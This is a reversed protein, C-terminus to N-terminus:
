LAKTASTEYSRLEAQARDRVVDFFRHQMAQQATWREEHDYVLLRDLLDLADETLLSPSSAENRKKHPAISHLAQWYDNWRVRQPRNSLSLNSEPSYSTELERRLSETVEISYKNIYAWMDEIGLVAIIKHLQEVNDRGRFFPERHFLLGALICGVGWLDIAYDYYSNGLLLEPAKYHRSAVRVNYPISPHYFDALGLDILTLPSRHMGDDGRRNILVNRPKVDRHMIGTAHLGDLAALLHYLYYRIEYNTLFSHAQPSTSSLNNDASHCFWQSQPGAHQMVLAPMRPLDTSSGRYKEFYDPSVVVAILRVINPVQAARELVMIERRIKREAVPKLCKVVVLTRPDVVSPLKKTAIEKELNVDVAEFVDSFKGTGLRRTLAFDDVSRVLVTQSPFQNNEYDYYSQPKQSCGFPYAKEGETCRLILTCFAHVILFRGQRRPFTIRQGEIRRKSRHPRRRGLERDIM